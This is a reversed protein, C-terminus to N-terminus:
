DCSRVSGWAQRDSGGTRKVGDKTMIRRMLFWLRAKEAIAGIKTVSGTLRVSATLCEAGTFKVTLFDFLNRIM